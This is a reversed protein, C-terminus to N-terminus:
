ILGKTRYIARQTKVGEGDGDVDQGSFSIGSLKNWYVSNKPGINWHLPNKEEVIVNNKRENCVIMNYKSHDKTSDTLSITIMRLFHASSCTSKIDEVSIAM